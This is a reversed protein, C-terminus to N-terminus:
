SNQDKYMYITFDRPHYDHRFVVWPTLTHCFAITELPDAHFENGEKNDAWNSLSNFAVGKRCIAFMKTIMTKFVLLSDTQRHAFIGSAFVFDFSGIENKELLNVIDFRAEPFRQRAIEIMKPTIDIGTYEMIIGSKKLWGYFDGLGCGIDLLIRGNLNGIQSLITFRLQQSECSGWDLARVDIGYKTILNTYYNINREDDKRWKDKNM